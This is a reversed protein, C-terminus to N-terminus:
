IDRVYDFIMKLFWFLHFESNYLDKSFNKIYINIQIFHCDHPFM